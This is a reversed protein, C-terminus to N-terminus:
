VLEAPQVGREKLFPEAYNITGTLTKSRGVGLSLRGDAIFEIPQVRDRTADHDPRARRGVPTDV